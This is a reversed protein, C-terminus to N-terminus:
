IPLPRRDPSCTRASSQCRKQINWLSPCPACRDSSIYSASSQPKVRGYKPESIRHQRWRSSTDRGYNPQPQRMCRFRKLQLSALQM